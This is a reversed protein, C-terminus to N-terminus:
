KGSGATPAQAPTWRQVGSEYIVVVRSLADEPAIVTFGVDPRIGVLKAAVDPRPQSHLGGGVIEGTEDVVVVCRVPDDTTSAWGVVLGAGPKPTVRDVSGAPKLPNRGDAPELETMASLDLTTGIEPGGCGLTFDGSFPYHGMSRLRPALDKPLSAGFADGLGLRLAVAQLPHDRNEARITAVTPAGLVFGLVGAALAAIAIRTAAPNTRRYLVTGLLVGLPVCVLVSLSTYRSNLGFETGFDIRARAIMASALVAHLGLVWWFRLEPSRADRNGILMGYIALVVGGALVATGSDTGTWLHGIVALFTYFVTGLDSAPTGGPDVAPKLTMWIVVVVVGLGLPLLRRWWREGRLHAFVALAPWVAFSTGYSMCALLAVVWAPWWRGRSALLLSAIVLLNALLWASGSMSRVFNHAGHLSFVLFAFAVVMSARMLPPLTKPLAARLLLVSGCAIAVVIMGLVRNDGDALRADVWYLLSPLMLPHENQLFRLGPINMSGDPNTIRLLVYWYDTYQLRPARAVEAIMAVVPIIALLEVLGARTTDRHLWGAPSPRATELPRAAVTATDTM